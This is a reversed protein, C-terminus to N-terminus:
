FMPNFRRAEAGRIGTLEEVAFLESDLWYETLEHKYEYGVGGKRVEDSKVLVAQCYDEIWFALEPDNYDRGNNSLIEELQSKLEEKTM